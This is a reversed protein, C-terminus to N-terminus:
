APVKDPTFIREVDNFCNITRISYGYEVLIKAFVSINMPQNWYFPNWEVTALGVRHSRFLDSAGLLIDQEHGETDIKLWDVYTPSPAISDLAVSAFKKAKVLPKRSHTRNQWTDPSGTFTYGGDCDSKNPFKLTIVENKSSIPQNHITILNEFNNLEAFRKATDVCKTQIEYSQVRCGYAAAMMSYFGDNMGIDIVTCNNKVKALYKTVIDIQHRERKMCWEYHNNSVYFQPISPLNVVKVVEIPGASKTRESTRQTETDSNLNQRTNRLSTNDPRIPKHFFSLLYVVECGLLITLLACTAHRWLTM